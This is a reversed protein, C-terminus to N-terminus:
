ASRNLECRSAFCSPRHSFFVGDYQFLAILLLTDRQFAAFNFSWLINRSDTAPPIKPSLRREDQIRRAREEGNPNLLVRWPVDLVWVLSSWDQPGCRRVHGFRSKHVFMCSGKGGTCRGAGDVRKHSQGAFPIKTLKNGSINRPSVHLIM